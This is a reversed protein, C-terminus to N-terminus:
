IKTLPPVLVSGTQLAMAVNTSPEDVVAFVGAYLIKVKPLPLLTVV